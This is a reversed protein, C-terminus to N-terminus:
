YTVTDGDAPASVFTEIQNDRAYDLLASRTVLCHNLAEMHTAVIQAQPLLSHAKLVDEMGFIIPGFDLLHAWGTNMILVDPQYQRLNEEIGKTWISDGLLYLTKEDPHQFVVGCAEGLRQALEPIAYAADSGHQGHTKTLMIDGYRSTDSLQRLQTFGQARLMAEDSANQVYILM